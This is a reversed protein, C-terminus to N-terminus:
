LKWIAGLTTFYGTLMRDSGSRRRVARMGWLGLRLLVSVLIVLKLSFLRLRPAAGRERRVFRCLSAYYLPLTRQAAQGVSLQGHHVLAAQPQYVIQWGAKQMRRCWDTEELFLFYGDDLGGVNELAERRVLMAAGLVHDVAVATTSRSERLSVEQNGVIRPTLRWLYFGDILASRVGPYGSWASRQPSGDPNILRPGVIGVTPNRALEECLLEIAGPLVETDSNLVLVYTGSSQAIALNTAAAFGVNSSNAIVQVDPFTARVADVSGDSSANDVVWTEHRKYAGFRAISELCALLQPRTNWNVVVISLEFQPDRM